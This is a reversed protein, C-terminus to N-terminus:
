RGLHMRSLLHGFHVNLITNEGDEILMSRADRMLKEAPYEKSLGYGGFLQLSANAVEFAIDTCSAKVRATFYPHPREATFSFASGYRAFARAMEVQGGMVGLRYQTLQHEVLLAGGQKREHVYGVANELASRALGVALNAMATGAQAWSVSHFSDFGHDGALMFRKPVRVSDFFIEGQPLARKGVKNLPKGKSVGPLDFPVIVAIGRPHGEADFFGEGFDAAIELMGVQAIPGNSVWASTQGNIIIEDGVVRATLSGKNGTKAKAHWEEPYMVLGDSGRDPQTAPWCGIKGETLGILEANGTRRAMTAPHGGVGFAVALGVDGYGLEEFMIGTMTAVEAASMSPDLEGLGLASAQALFEYLPSGAAVVQEPTMADLERGLPQMVERAFRNLMAQISRQEETLMSEFGSIGVSPVPVRQIPMEAM